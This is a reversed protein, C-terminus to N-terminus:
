WTGHTGPGRITLELMRIRHKPVLTWPRTDGQTLHVQSYLECPSANATALLGCRYAISSSKLPTLYCM